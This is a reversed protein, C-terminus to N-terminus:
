TIRYITPTPFLTRWYWRLIGAASITELPSLFTARVSGDPHTHRQFCQPRDEQLHAQASGLFGLLWVRCNQSSLFMVADWTFQVMSSTLTLIWECAPQPFSRHCVIELTKLILRNFFFFLGVSSSHPCRWLLLDADTLSNIFRLLGGVLRRRTESLVRKLKKWKIRWWCGGGRLRTM